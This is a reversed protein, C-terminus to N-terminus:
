WQRAPKGWCLVAAPDAPNQKDVVATGCIFRKLYALIACFGIPTAVAADDRFFMIPMITSMMKQQEVVSPDASPAVPTLKSQAFMSVAYFLLLLM